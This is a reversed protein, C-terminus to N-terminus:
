HLLMDSVIADAFIGLPNLIPGVKKKELFLIPSQGWRRKKSASKTTTAELCGTGIKFYLSVFFLRKFHFHISVQFFQGM